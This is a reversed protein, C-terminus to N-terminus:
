EWPRDHIVVFMHTARVTVSLLSCFVTVFGMTIAAIPPLEEEEDDVCRSEVGPDKVFKVVRVRFHLPTLELPEDRQVIDAIWNSLLTYM